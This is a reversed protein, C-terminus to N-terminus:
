VARKECIRGAVDNVHYKKYRGYKIYDLGELFGPMSNTHTGMYKAIQSICVLSSGFTQKMDRAVTQKDM